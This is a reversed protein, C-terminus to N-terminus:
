MLLLLAVAEVVLHLFLKWLCQSAGYVEGGITRSMLLNFLLNLMTIDPIGSCGLPM